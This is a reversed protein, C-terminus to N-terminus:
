RAIDRSRMKWPRITRKRLRPQPLLRSLRYFCVPPLLREASRLALTM